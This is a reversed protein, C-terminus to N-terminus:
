FRSEANVAQGIMASIDGTLELSLGVFAAVPVDVTAQKQRVKALERLQSGSGREAEVAGRDCEAIVAEAFTPVDGPGDTRAFNEFTSGILIHVVDGCRMLYLSNIRSLLRLSSTNRNKISGSMENLLLSASCSLRISLFGRM